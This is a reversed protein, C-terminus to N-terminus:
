SLRGESAAIAVTERQTAAFQMFLSGAKPATLYLRIPVPRRQCTTRVSARANSIWIAAQVQGSGVCDFALVYRGARVWEGGDTTMPTGVSSLPNALRGALEDIEGPVNLGALARNATDDLVAITHASRNDPLHDHGGPSGPAGGSCAAIVASAMLAGAAMTTRAGVTM